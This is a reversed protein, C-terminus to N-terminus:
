DSIQVRLSVCGSTIEVVAMTTAAVNVKSREVETTPLVTTHGQPSLLASRNNDVHIAIEHQCGLQASNQRHCGVCNNGGARGVTPQV